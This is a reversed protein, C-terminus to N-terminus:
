GACPPCSTRRSPRGARVSVFPDSSISRLPNSAGNAGVARVEYIGPKANAVGIGLGGILGVTVLAATLKRRALSRLTSRTNTSTTM